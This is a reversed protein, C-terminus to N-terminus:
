HDHHKETSDAKKVAELKMGCKSCKDGDKGTVEPHMPCAYATENDHEEGEAHKHNEDEKQEQETKKSNCSIVLVSGTIFGSILIVITVISKKM